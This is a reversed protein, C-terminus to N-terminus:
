ETAPLTCTTQELVGHLLKLASATISTPIWNNPQIAFTKQHALKFWTIKMVQQLLQYKIDKYSHPKPNMAICSYFNVYQKHQQCNLQPAKQQKNISQKDLMNELSNHWRKQQLQYM